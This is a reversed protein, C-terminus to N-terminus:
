LYLEESPGMVVVTGAWTVWARFRATEVCFAYGSLQFGESQKLFGRGFLRVFRDGGERDIRVVHGRLGGVNPLFAVEVVEDAQVERASRQVGDMFQPFQSGDALKLVWTYCENPQRM